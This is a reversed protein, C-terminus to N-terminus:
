AEKESEVQGYFRLRREIGAMAAAKERVYFHRLTAQVEAPKTGGSLIPVSVVHEYVEGAAIQAKEATNIQGPGTGEALVTTGGAGSKVLSDRVSCKADNDAAAVPYHFAVRAQGSADSDLVHIDAM